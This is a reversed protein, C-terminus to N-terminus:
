SNNTFRYLCESKHLEAFILNLKNEILWNAGEQQSKLRKIRIPINFPDGKLIYQIFHCTSEGSKFFTDQKM